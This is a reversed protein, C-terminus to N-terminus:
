RALAVVVGLQRLMPLSPGLLADVTARPAGCILLVVPGKQAWLRAYMQVQGLARQASAASLGRKMEVLVADGLVLDARFRQKDDRMPREREASVSPMRQRLSRLLSAVYGAESPHSRPKWAALSTLLEGLLPHATARALAAIAEADRCDIIAAPMDRAARALAAREGDHVVLRDAARATRGLWLGLLWLALGLCLGACGALFVASDVSALTTSRTSLVEALVVQTLVVVNHLALLVIALGALFAGASRLRVSGPLASAAKFSEVVDERFVTLRERVLQASWRKADDRFSGVRALLLVELYAALLLTGVATWRLDRPSSAAEWWSLGAVLLSLVVLVLRRKGYFAADVRDAVDLVLHALDPRAPAEAMDVSGPPPPTAEFASAM